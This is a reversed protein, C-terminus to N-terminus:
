MVASAFARIDGALLEPVELGPFHGGRPMETWRHLNLWREGWARPAPMVDKPFVAVAAPARTKTGLSQMNPDRGAEFYLRMSSGITETAWYITLITCLTALSYVSEIDGRCDSWSRFKEVIWAALGVPSDNLGYALTQPKTSQEMAYAAEQAQRVQLRQIFEQEENTPNEPHPYGWFVNATHLGVVNAPHNLALLIAIGGGLDEGHVFYRNYGLRQMLVAFREAMKTLNMGSKRSRESLGFGPLSPIVLDFALNDQEKTLLPVLPLLEYFNSPWGNVLLLPPSREGMGRVHFFHLNEGEITTQFHPIQNIAAEQSRWDFQNAWYEALRRLFALDAGYSWRSGEIEDPWRTRSLRERLEQLVVEPVEIQFPRISKDFTPPVRQQDRRETM